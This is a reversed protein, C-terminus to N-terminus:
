PATLQCWSRRAGCAAPMDVAVPVGLPPDATWVGVGLPLASRCDDGLVSGLVAVPAWAHWLEAPWCMGGSVQGGVM